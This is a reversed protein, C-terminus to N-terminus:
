FEGAIFDPQETDPPPPLPMWSHVNLLNMGDTVCWESDHMPMYAAVAMLNATGRCTLIETGDKPATAIDQWECM